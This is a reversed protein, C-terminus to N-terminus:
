GKSYGLGALHPEPVLITHGGGALKYPVQLEKLRAVAAGAEQDTLDTYLPRYARDAMMSRFSLIGTFVLVGSTM